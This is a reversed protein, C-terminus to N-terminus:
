EQDHAVAGPAVLRDFEDVAARADAAWGDAGISMATSETVAPGGILIPVAIGSQRLAAITAGAESVADDTAVSIGIAACTLRKATEVFSEVPTDAGLDAVNYGAGRLVDSLMALPLEHHDGGAGGLLLLARPRGVRTFRPGLRGVLRRAAATARHEEAVTLEADSWRDGISRLVPALLDVYVAVPEAGGRIVSEVVGWAGSADGAVLTRDLRERHTRWDPRGRKGPAPPTSPHRLAELDSQRVWWRGDAREAPLTGLRMRRYATMYHIGLLEAAEQLTVRKTKKDAM